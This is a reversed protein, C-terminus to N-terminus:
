SSRRDPAPMLRGNDFPEGAKHWLRYQSREDVNRPQVLIFDGKMSDMLRSVEALPLGTKEAMEDERHAGETWAKVLAEGADQNFLEDGEETLSLILDDWFREKFEGDPCKDIIQSKIIEKATAIHALLAQRESLTGEEERIHEVAKLAVAQKTQGQAKLYRQADTVRFRPLTVKKEAFTNLAALPDAASLAIDYYGKEELIDLVNHELSANQVDLLLKFIQRNRYITAPTVGIAKAKKAVAALIGVADVDKNGRGRKAQETQTWIAADCAVEIRWRYKELQKAQYRIDLVANEDHQSLTELTAIDLRALQELYPTLSLSSTNTSSTFPLVQTSPLNSM